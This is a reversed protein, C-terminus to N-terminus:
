ASNTTANFPATGGPGVSVKAGVLKDKAAVAPVVGASLVKLIEILKTEELKEAALSATHSDTDGVLPVAPRVVVANVTLAANCGVQGCYKIPCM